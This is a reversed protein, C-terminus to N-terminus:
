KKVVYLMNTWSKYIFVIIKDMEHKYVEDGKQLDLFSQKGGGIDRGIKTSYITVTAYDKKLATDEIITNVLGKLVEFNNFTGAFYVAKKSGLTRVFEARTIKEM